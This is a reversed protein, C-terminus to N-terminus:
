EKGRYPQRRLVRQKTYYLEIDDDTSWGDGYIYHFEYTVAVRIRDGVNMKYAADPLPLSDTDLLSWWENIWDYANEYNCSQIFVTVDWPVYQCDLKDIVLLAKGKIM